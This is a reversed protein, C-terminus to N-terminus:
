EQWVALNEFLSGQGAFNISFFHELMSITLTKGFRRPRTILTVSDKSDWWEKIFYTKDVYFCDKEIMQEFDQIGIAVTRAM